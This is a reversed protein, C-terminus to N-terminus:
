SREGSLSAQRLFRAVLAIDAESFGAYLEANLRRHVLKAAALRSEGDPTLFLQVARADDPAPDRRVLAEAELRTVMSTIASKAVDLTRALEQQQQGPKADLCFLVGLQAATIGVSGLLEQDAKRKTAQSARQLLAYIRPKAM